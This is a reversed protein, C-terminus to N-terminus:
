TVHLKIQTIYKMNINHKIIYKNYIQIYIINETKNYTEIKMNNSKLNKHYRKTKM